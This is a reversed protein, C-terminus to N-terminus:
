EGAVTMADIMVSGTLINGRPDVDNGISTINKYIEILNGAVTIEEVPYVLEGNEVWFGSAGRSYDGTVQNVGFGIMDTILLGTHMEKIMNDLNNKGSDIVLNHVGGANGTTQLGLKRASYGSLLYDQLVGNKVIDRPRTAVGDNDFPASGLAKKIHPEERINIHDAFVQTGKKNLLFSAQRYLNGGSIATIFASFLGSAVQAEFIVPVQRTSLKRSGLRSITRRVAEKSISNISELDNFDRTKSYWGDRQMGNKDEAIVTCDITHSSWNWGDIFGNTNGYLNIGSYTSVVSGDSNSIRKDCAFAAQECEIALDTAAKPSIPWPHYLDLDPVKTAMLIPEILGAYEDRSAYQAIRIAAQVSKTLASESFDSSSANGKQGNIYVTIGLGKDREYELKDIIGKRVNASLGSGAGIDAEASTAGMKKAQTLVSDIIRILEDRDDPSSSSNIVEM